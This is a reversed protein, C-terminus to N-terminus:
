RCRSVETRPEYFGHELEVHRCFLASSNCIWDSNSVSHGIHPQNFHFSRHSIPGWGAWETDCLHRRSQAKKKVVTEYFEQTYLQYCPGGYVPDALDGIIVDFDEVSEILEKRADSIMIKLRPDEFAEHNADLHKKCFQVVVEDIDVMVVKEVSKHLLVERATSGEGGGMIFVKKPNPHHLLAPHVLSEHYVFEDAEASQLKGDLLLVKGFPGSEILEVDQFKSKEKHLINDVTYMWKLDEQISEELWLRKGGDMAARKQPGAKASVAGVHRDKPKERRQKTWSKLVISPDATSGLVCGHHTAFTAFVDFSYFEDASVVSGFVFPAITRRSIRM